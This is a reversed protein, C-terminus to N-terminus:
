ARTVAGTSQIQLTAEFVGSIGADGIAYSEVVCQGSYTFTTSTGPVTTKFFYLTRAAAAATCALDTTDGPTVRLKITIPGCDALDPLYERQGGTSGHHTVDTKGTTPNPFGVSIVQSLLGTAGSITTASLQFTCGFTQKAM